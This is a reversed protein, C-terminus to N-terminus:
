PMTSHSAIVEGTNRDTAIYTATGPLTEGIRIRIGSKNPSIYGKQSYVDHVLKYAQKLEKKTIARKIHINKPIQQFMGRRICKQALQQMNSSKKPPKKSYPEIAEATSDM